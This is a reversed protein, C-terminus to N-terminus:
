ALAQRIRGGAVLREGDYVVAVQGPTVAWAPEAFVLRAHDPGDPEWRAAVPEGSSRIKATVSIPTEPPRGEPYNVREVLAGAARVEDRGGVIVRNDDPDLAVVYLPERAAVGLGRRQGVTYFAIGRHTGVTRGATDVMVGPRVAEPRHEELYARYDNDPVFCLEQSDPKDATVLGAAEAIARAEAKTREGLPFLVHALDKPTLTYLIYSQDKRHDRARWLERHGDAGEVVRAYHGTAIYDAGHARAWGWLRGFKIYRNCAACPNPTEGTLYALEFPEIVRERFSQEVDVVYHPIKLAKAVRRADVVAELSCCSNAQEPPLHRMTVGICEYGAECLLAAAASSDVGGSLGVVVVGRTM